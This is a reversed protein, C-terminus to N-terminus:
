EQTILITRSTPLCLAIIARLEDHPCTGTTDYRYQGWLVSNLVGGPHGAVSQASCSPTHNAILRGQVSGIYLTEVDNYNCIAAQRKFKRLINDYSNTRRSDCFLISRNNMSLNNHCEERM